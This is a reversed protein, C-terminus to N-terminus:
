RLKTRDISLVANVVTHAHFSTTIFNHVKSSGSKFVEVMFLFKQSLQSIKM